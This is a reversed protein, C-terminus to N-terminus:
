QDSYKFIKADLWCSTTVLACDTRIVWSENRGHFPRNNVFNFFQKTLVHFVDPSFWESVKIKSSNSFEGLRLNRFYGILKDNISQWFVTKTNNKQLKKSSWLTLWCYVKNSIKQNFSYKQFIRECHHYDLISSDGMHFHYNYCLEVLLRNKEEENKM